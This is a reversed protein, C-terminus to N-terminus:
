HRFCVIVTLLLPVIFFVLFVAALPLAQVWAPLGRESMSRIPM